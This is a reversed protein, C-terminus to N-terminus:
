SSRALPPMPRIWVPAYKMSSFVAWPPRVRSKEVSLDMGLPVTSVSRTWRQPALIKACSLQPVPRLPMGWIPSRTGM